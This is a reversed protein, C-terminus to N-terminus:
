NDLKVNVNISASNVPQLHPAILSKRWQRWDRAGLGQKKYREQRRPHDVPRLIRLSPFEDEKSSQSLRRKQQRAAVQHLLQLMEDTEERKADRLLIAADSNSSLQTSISDESGLVSTATLAGSSRHKMVDSAPKTDHGRCVKNALRTPTLLKDAAESVLKRLEPSDNASGDVSLPAHALNQTMLSAQLNSPSTIFDEDLM